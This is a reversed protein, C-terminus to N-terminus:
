INKRRYLQIGDQCKIPPFGDVIGVSNPYIDIILDFKPSLLQRLADNFKRDHIGILLYDILDNKISDAAGLMVEYEAGQVDIDIIDVHDFGYAQILKDVTYMPVETTKRLILDRLDRITEKITQKHFSIAQGYCADPAAHVSFHCTGNKDSVAGHVAVGNINQSQFHEKLWQYHTPEGEVALCRYSKPAIPIVKYDIAGALALCWEGWGAGLEFMNVHERKIDALVSLFCDREFQGEDLEGAANVSKSQEGFKVKMQESWCKAMRHYGYWAQEWGEDNPPKTEPTKVDFHRVIM